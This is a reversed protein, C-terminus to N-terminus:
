IGGSAALVVKTAVQNLMRNSPSKGRPIASPQRGSAWSRGRFGNPGQARTVIQVAEAARPDSLLDLETLLRLGQLVDYHWYPPYHLVTWSPHVVTRPRSRSFVVGSELLLEGTRHAAETARDNRTAKGFIALGLAPTVSEHFSSRVM